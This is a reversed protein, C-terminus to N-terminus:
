FAERAGKLVKAFNEDILKKLYEVMKKSGRIEKPFLNYDTKKFPSVEVGKKDDKFSLSNMIEELGAGRAYTRVQKKSVGPAFVSSIFKALITNLTDGDKDNIKVKDWDIVDTVFEQTSPDRFIKVVDIDKNDLDTVDGPRSRPITIAITPDKNLWNIIIPASLLDVIGTLRKTNAKIKREVVEINEKEAESDLAKIVNKINDLADIAESGRKQIDLEIPQRAYGLGFSSGKKAWFWYRFDFSGAGKVEDLRIIQNFKM